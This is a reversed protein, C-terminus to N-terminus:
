PSAPAHLTLAPSGNYKLQVALAAPEEGGGVFGVREMTRHFVQWFEEAEACREVELELVQAQLLAYQVLRRDGALRDVKKRLDDWSRAFHFYRVIGVALLFLAGIGVPLTRGQTWVISLGLLSFVVCLGYIAILM